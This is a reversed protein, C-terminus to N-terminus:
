DRQRGCSEMLVIRDPGLNAPKLALQEGFSMGTSGAICSSVYRDGSQRLITNGAQRGSGCSAGDANGAGPQRQGQAVIFPDYQEGTGGGGKRWLWGQIFTMSGQSPSDSCVSMLLFVMAQATDCCVSVLLFVLAQAIDCCVSVFLFVLAQATDCGVSVLLLVLAQATDCCMSVLLLVLAQATDCCKSVLLLVLAQATDCCVSVLLFVLAQATM